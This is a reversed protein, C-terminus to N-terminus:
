LFCIFVLQFTLSATFTQQRGVATSSSSRKNFSFFCFGLSNIFYLQILLFPQEAGKSILFM